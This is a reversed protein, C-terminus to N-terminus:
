TPSYEHALSEIHNTLAPLDALNNSRTIQYIRAHQALAAVQQFHSKRSTQRNLLIPRFVNGMLTTFVDSKQVSRIRWQDSDSKTLWYIHSVPAPRASAQSPLPLTYKGDFPWAPEIEASDMGLRELSDMWLRTRPIGPLVHPVAQADLYIAAIDDSLVQYGRQAFSNMLTSKGAGSEGIFLVARGNIVVASGHLPLNGRQHLLAGFASGYLYSRVVSLKSSASPRILINRGHSILFEGVTATHFRLQHETLQFTPDEALADSLSPLTDTLQIIVDPAADGDAESIEPLILASAIQWGYARYHFM